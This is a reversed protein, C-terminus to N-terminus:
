MTGDVERSVNAVPKLLFSEGRAELGAWTLMCRGDVCSRSYTSSHCPGHGLQGTAFLILVCAHDSAATNPDSWHGKM